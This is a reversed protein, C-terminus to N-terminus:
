GADVVTRGIRRRRAEPSARLSVARERDFCVADWGVHQVRVLNGRAGTTLSGDDWEVTAVGDFPADRGVITGAQSAQPGGAVIRGDSDRGIACMATIFGLTHKVREGIQLRDNPGAGVAATM